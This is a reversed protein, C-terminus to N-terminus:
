SSLSLTRNKQRDADIQEGITLLFEGIPPSLDRLDGDDSTRVVGWEREGRGERGLRSALGGHTVQLPRPPPWQAASRRASSILSPCAM